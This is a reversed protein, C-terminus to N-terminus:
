LKVLSLLHMFTSLLSQLCPAGDRNALGIAVNVQFWYSQYMTNRLTELRTISHLVKHTVCPTDAKHSATFSVRFWNM